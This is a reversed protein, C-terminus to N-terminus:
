AFYAHSCIDIWRIQDEYIKRFSTKSLISQAGKVGRDDYADETRAAAEGAPHQRRSRPHSSYSSRVKKEEEEEEFCYSTKGFISSKTLRRSTTCSICYLHILKEKKTQFWKSVAILWLCM